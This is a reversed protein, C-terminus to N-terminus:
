ADANDKNQSQPAHYRVQRDWSSMKWNRKAMRRMESTFTHALSELSQSTGAAPPAIWSTLELEVQVWTLVSGSGQKIRKGRGKDQHGRKRNTDSSGSGSSGGNSGPVAADLLLRKVLALIIPSVKDGVSTLIALDRELFPQLLTMDSEQIRDVLPYEEPPCPELGLTYVQHRDIPLFSDDSIDTRVASSSYSPTTSQFPVPFPYFGDLEELRHSSDIPTVSRSRSPTRSSADSPSISLSRSRSRHRRQEGSQHQEQDYEDRSPPSRKRRPRQNNRDQDQDQDQDEDLRRDLVLGPTSEESAEQNRLTEETVLAINNLASILASRSHESILLTHIVGLATNVGHHLSDPSSKCLPCQLNIDFWAALCSACFAHFCPSLYVRGRFPALCIACTVAPEEEHDDEHGDKHDPNDNNIEHRTDMPGPRNMPQAPDLFPVLHMFSCVALCILSTSLPGLACSFVRTNPLSFLSSFSSLCPSPLPQCSLRAMHM